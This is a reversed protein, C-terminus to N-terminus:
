QGHERMYISRVQEAVLRSFATLAQSQAQAVSPYDKKEVKSIFRDERRLLVQKDDGRSIGWFVELVAAEGPTVEFRQVNVVVRYDIAASAPWPYGVIQETDLFVQLNEQLVRAFNRDLPEAWRDFEALHLQNPGIRTVIQQRALYEPFGVPGVGISLDKEGGDPRAPSAAKEVPTLLYFRTSLSKGGVCGGVQIAAALLLLAKAFRFTKKDDM